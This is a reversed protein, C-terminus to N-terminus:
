ANTKEATKSCKKLAINAAELLTGSLESLRDQALHYREAYKIPNLVVHEATIECFEKLTNTYFNLYAEGSFYLCYKEGSIREAEKLSQLSFDLLEKQSHVTQENGEYEKIIKFIALNHPAILTSM